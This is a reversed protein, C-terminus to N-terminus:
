CLLKYVFLVRLASVLSQLVGDMAIFIWARILVRVIGVRATFLHEDLAKWCIDQWHVGNSKTPM